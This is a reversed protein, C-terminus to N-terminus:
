ARLAGTTFQIHTIFTQDCIHMIPPTPVPSVRIRHKADLTLREQSEEGSRIDFDQPCAAPADFNDNAPRVRFSQARVIKAFANQQEQM